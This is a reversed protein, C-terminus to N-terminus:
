RIYQFVSVQGDGQLVVLQGESNVELDVPDRIDAIVVALLRGAKTFLQVRDNHSDAVLLHGHPDICVGGPHFLQGPRCGKQGFEHLLGGFASLVKVKHEHYDAVILDNDKDVALFWPRQFCPARQGGVITHLLALQSNSFIHLVCGSTITDSVVLDGNGTLALGGPCEPTSRLKRHFDGESSFLKLGTRCAVAVRQADLEVAKTPEDLPLTNFTHLLKGSATFRQVQDLGIDTVLLDGSQTISLGSAKYHPRSDPPRTNFSTLKKAASVHRLTPRAEQIHHSTLMGFMEANLELSTTFMTCLRWSLDTFSTRELDEAHSRLDRSLSLFDLPRQQELLREIHDCTDQLQDLTSQIEGLRTHLWLTEAQWIRSMQMLSRNHWQDVLEHLERARDHVQTEILERKLDLDDEYQRLEQEQSRFSSSKQLLSTRLRKLSAKRSTAAGEITSYVHGPHQRAKCQFCMVELCDQCYLAQRGSAESHEDCSRYRELGSVRFSNRRRKRWEDGSVEASRQPCTVEDDHECQNRNHPLTRARQRLEASLDGGVQGKVELDEELGLRDLSLDYAIPIVRRM